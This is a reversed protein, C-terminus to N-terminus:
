GNLLLIPRRGLSGIEFRMYLGIPEIFAIVRGDVKAMAMCTRLMKVADDGRSPTAVVLGPVDRMAAVSNDNHFHGGMGKQYAWGAIRIVMPNRYQRNSFFQM